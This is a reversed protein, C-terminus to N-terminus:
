PQPTSLKRTQTSYYYRCIAQNYHDYIGRLNGSWHYDYYTIYGSADTVSILQVMQNFEFTRIAGYPFANRIGRIKTEI